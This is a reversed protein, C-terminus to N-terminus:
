YKPDHKIQDHKISFVFIEILKVFLYKNYQDYTLCQVLCQTHAPCPSCFQTLGPSSKLSNINQNPLFIHMDELFWLSLPLTHLSRLPAFHEPIKLFPPITETWCSEAAHSCKLCESHCDMRIWNARSVMDVQEVSVGLKTRLYGM